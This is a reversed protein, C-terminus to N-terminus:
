TGLGLVALDIVTSVAVENGSPITFVITLGLNGDSIDSEDIDIEQLALDPLYVQFVGQVSDRVIDGVDGVPAFTAQGLDAGYLPDSPREGMMTALLITVRDRWITDVDSTSLPRGAGDLQLPYRLALKTSLSTVTM